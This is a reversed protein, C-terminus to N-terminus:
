DTIAISLHLIPCARYEIWPQEPQSFTMKAFDHSEGSPLKQCGANLASYSSLRMAFPAYRWIM